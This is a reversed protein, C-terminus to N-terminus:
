DRFRDLFAAHFRQLNNCFDDFLHEEPLFTSRLHYTNEVQGFGSGPVVCVGTAELMQECYYDDPNVGLRKAEQIAKPPLTITPFLYMAGQAPQCSVGEMANFATELKNARRQLSAFTGNIEANYQEYSPDDKRPPNCMLDVLIQGHLNPCLNVSAMKYIQDRVAPKINICEFYGGRRGCEGIMGKSISHFSILEVHDRVHALPHQLLAKRFSVFPRTSTYINTQYVEDALLVLREDYCFTLLDTLNEHSLCQGTPNGPNIIVLARVDVGDERAKYVNGKLQKVDLAWGNEEDLYYPVPTAGIFSLTASYLPYQPIPILIGSQANETLMTLITQVGSSAGQTLFIQNPDGAEETGDREQVFKAVTRRIGPVGQSHSYAGVSGIQSLLSQAREIADSPYLQSVLGRNSEALLDPYDCLSTVQRFFTIPKQNLQQPNGINCNVVTGFPKATGADLENRLEEARIAIRGRVAYEVAKVYKNISKETM